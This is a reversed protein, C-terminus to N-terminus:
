RAARPEDAPCVREVAAPRRLGRLDHIWGETFVHPLGAGRSRHSELVRAGVHALGPAQLAGSRRAHPDPQRRPHYRAVHSGERDDRPEARRAPLRPGVGADRAKLREYYAITALPNLAPDAWGHALILRGGRAKFASLDDSDADVVPSLTQVDSQWSALSYKAYDWDPRGAVMYKFGDTA